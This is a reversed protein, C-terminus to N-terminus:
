RIRPVKFVELSGDAGVRNGLRGSTVIHSGDPNATFTWKRGGSYVFGDNGFYTKQGKGPFWHFVGQTDIWKIQGSPFWQIRAGNPYDFTKGGLWSPDGGAREGRPLGTHTETNNPYLTSSGGMDHFITRSGDKNKRIKELQAGKMDKSEGPKGDLKGSVTPVPPAPEVPKVNWSGTQVGWPEAYAPAAMLIVSISVITRKFSMTLNGRTM